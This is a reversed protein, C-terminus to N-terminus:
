ARLSVQAVAEEGSIYATRLAPGQKGDKGM